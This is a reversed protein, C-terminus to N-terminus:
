PEQMSRTLKREYEDGLVAVEGYFWPAGTGDVIRANRFIVDYVRDGECSKFESLRDPGQLLCRNCFFM